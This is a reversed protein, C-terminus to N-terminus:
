KKLNKDPSVVLDKVSQFSSGLSIEKEGETSLQYKSPEFDKDRFYSPELSDILHKSSSDLYLCSSLDFDLQNIRTRGEKLDTFVEKIDIVEMENKTCGFLLAISIVKVALFKM